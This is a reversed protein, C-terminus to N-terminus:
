FKEILFVQSALIEKGRIPLARKYRKEKILKLINFKQLYLDVFNREWLYEVNGWYKVFIPKDSYYEMGWIYRKTCRVIEKLALILDDPSIHILVASTFVLDFYEDKFPIDFASGQIININKTSFKAKEVAYSQIEIGYLNKFDMLQLHRLQQGINCGIELIKIEKDINKLFEINIASRTTGYMKLYLEDLGEISYTNTATYDIGCKGKWFKEQLTSM